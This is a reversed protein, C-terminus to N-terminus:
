GPRNRSDGGEAVGDGDERDRSAWWGWCAAAAALAYVAATEATSTALEWSAAERNAEFLRWRHGAFLVPLVHAAVVLLRQGLRQRARKALLLPVVASAGTLVVGTVLEILRSSSDIPLGDPGWASAVPDPLEGAFRLAMLLVAAVALMPIVFERAPVGEVVPGSAHQHSVLSSARDVWVEVRAPDPSFGDPHAAATPAM